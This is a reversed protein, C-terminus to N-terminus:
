IPAVTSVWTNQVPDYLAGNSQWADACSGAACQYEGGQVIVKGDPLVASAFYLPAYGAPLSAVQTWTGNIYSGNIDPTLTYWATYDKGKCTSGSCNPEEHLLVRGDTLLMMAGLSVPPATTVTTWTQANAIAVSSVVALCAVARLVVLSLLKM